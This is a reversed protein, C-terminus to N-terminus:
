LNLDQGRLWVECFSLRRGERAADDNTAFALLDLIKPVVEAERLNAACTIPV